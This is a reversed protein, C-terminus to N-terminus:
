IDQHLIFNRIMYLTGSLDSTFMCRIECAQSFNERFEEASKGTLMDALDIYSIWIAKQVTYNLKHSTEVDASTEEGSVPIVSAKEMTVLRDRQSNVEGGCSCLTVFCMLLALIKKM